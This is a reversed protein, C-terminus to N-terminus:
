ENANGGKQMKKISFYTTTLGKLYERSATKDLVVELILEAEHLREEDSM